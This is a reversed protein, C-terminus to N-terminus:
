SSMLLKQVGKELKTYFRHIDRLDEIGVIMECKRGHKYNDSLELMSIRYVVDKLEDYGPNREIDISIMRNSHIYLKRKLVYSSDRELYVTYEKYVECFKDFGNITLYGRSAKEFVDDTIRNYFVNKKLVM